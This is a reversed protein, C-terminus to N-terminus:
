PGVLSVRQPLMIEMCDQGHRWAQMNGLGTQVLVHM